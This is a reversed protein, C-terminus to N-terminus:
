LVLCICQKTLYYVQNYLSRLSHVTLSSLINIGLEEFYELFEANDYTFAMNLYDQLDHEEDQLFGAHFSFFLLLLHV